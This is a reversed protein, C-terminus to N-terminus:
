FITRKLSIDKYIALLDDANKQKNHTNHARVIANQSLENALSDNAFVRMICDAMMYPANPQYLLGEKGNDIIDPIGGVYSAVVPTGLMMAEGVSNPSNEITSPCVFVNANLYQRAMQLDDMLGCVTICDYLGNQSLYTNIYGFYGGLYKDRFTKIGKNKSIGSDGGIYVHVDPYFRKVIALAQMFIHFGKIPYNAQSIFISHKLCSKSLWKQDTYFADRLTENVHFYHIKPNIQEVCAKDWSTRGIINHANAIINYERNGKSRMDLMEYKTPLEIIKGRTAFRVAKKIISDNYYKLPIQDLYHLTCFYTLGQINIITKSTPSVSIMAAAHETETGYIHIIDYKHESLYTRFSEKLADYDQKPFIIYHVNGVDCELIQNVDKGGITAITISEIRNRIGNIAGTLWGGFVSSTIGLAKGAEPLVINVLWLVNM